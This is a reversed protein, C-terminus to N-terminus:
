NDDIMIGNRASFILGIKSFVHLKKNYVTELIFRVSKPTRNFRGTFICSEIAM